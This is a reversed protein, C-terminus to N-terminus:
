VTRSASGASPDACATAVSAAGAGRTAGCAAQRRRLAQASAPAVAAARRGVQHPGGALGPRAAGRGAQARDQLQREPDAGRRGAARRGPGPRGAPRRLDPVPGRIRRRHRGGGPALQRAERTGLNVFSRRILAFDFTGIGYGIGVIPGMLPSILMAGIIVAPSHINLGISAVLIAFMLFWPTAGRLEVGARLSSDIVNDDGKDHLLSFRHALGSPPAARSATETDDVSM